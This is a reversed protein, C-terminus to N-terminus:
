LATIEYVIGHAYKFRIVGDSLSIYINGESDVDMDYILLSDRAFSDKQIRNEITM